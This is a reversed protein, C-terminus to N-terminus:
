HEAPFSQIHCAVPKVVVTDGFTCQRTAALADAMSTEM